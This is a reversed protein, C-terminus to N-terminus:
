GRAALVQEAERKIMRVMNTLGMSKGMSLERGFITYVVEEPVDKISELPEGSLTTDLIQALAMASIGQPNDVAILYKLGDGEPRSAIYVESECGPVRTSENRPVDAPMEYAQGISILADIRDQRDSFISLDDLFASLKTPLSM